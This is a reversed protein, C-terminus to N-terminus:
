DACEKPGTGHNGGGLQTRTAQGDCSTGGQGLTLQAITGLEIMKPTEYQM